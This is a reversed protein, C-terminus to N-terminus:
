KKTAMAPGEPILACNLMRSNRWNTDWSNAVTTNPYHRRWGKEYRYVRDGNPDNLCKISQGESVDNEVVQDLKQLTKTSICVDNVCFKQAEDYHEKFTTRVFLSLVAVLVLILLLGYIANTSKSM